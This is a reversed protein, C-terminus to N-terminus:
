HRKRKMNVYLFWKKDGTIILDLWNDTRRYSLLSTAVEVRRQRDFDTLGEADSIMMHHHRLSRREDEYSSKGAVAFHMYKFSAQSLDEKGKQCREEICANRRLRCIMMHPHAANEEGDDYSSLRRPLTLAHPVWQALKHVKGLQRLHMAITTFHAGLVQALDRTTQRSDAEILQRLRDNDVQAPRGSRPSDELNFNGNQFHRFWDQTKRESMTGDGFTANIRRSSATASEGSKFDYFLFGCFYQKSLEMM